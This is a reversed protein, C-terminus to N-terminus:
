KDRRSSRYPPVPEGGAFYIMAPPLKELATIWEEARRESKPPFDNLLNYKAVVYLLFV